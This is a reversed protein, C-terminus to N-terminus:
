HGIALQSGIQDWLIIKGHEVVFLAVAEAGAPDVCRRGKRDGLRFTATAASGNQTLSVITGSCPLRANWVVADGHTRLYVLRDGQVIAANPAFLSAARENDDASLAKSWARVVDRPSPGKGGCGAVALLVVLVLAVLRARGSGGGRVCRM